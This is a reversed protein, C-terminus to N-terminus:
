KKRSVNLPHLFFEFAECIFYLIIALPGSVAKRKVPDLTVERVRQQIDYCCVSWPWVGTTARNEEEIVHDIVM